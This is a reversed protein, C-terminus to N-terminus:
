FIVQFPTKNKALIGLNELVGKQKKHKPYFCYKEVVSFYKDQLM